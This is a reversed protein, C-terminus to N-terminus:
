KVLKIKRSARDSLAPKKAISGLDLVIEHTETNDVYFVSREDPDISALYIGDNSLEVKTEKRIAYNDVTITHTGRELLRIAWYEEIPTSNSANVTGLGLDTSITYGYYTSSVIILRTNLFWQYNDYWVKSFMYAYDSYGDGNFDAKVYSPLNYNDRIVDTPYLTYGYREVAPMSYGDVCGAILEKVEDPIYVYADVYPAQNDVIITENGSEIGTTFDLECGTMFFVIGLLSVLSIIRM